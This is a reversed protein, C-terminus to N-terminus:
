DNFFHFDEYAKQYSYFEEGTDIYNKMGILCQMVACEEESLRANKYPFDYLVRDFFVIRDNYFGELLGSTKLVIEGETLKGESNFFRVTNNCIEGKTGRILLRDRRIPSFYQESNYDYIATKSGFSFIMVRNSTNRIPKETSEGGRSHSIIMPDTLNFDCLKQPKEYDSFLFRMMSMAHYDHGVSINIYHVDGITDTDILKKIAQYTGKQHYQEAVQIKEYAHSGIPAKLAPTESLVFYGKDALEIAFDSVYSYSICNVVFDFDENLLDDLSSFTKVNYKQEIYARRDNNRIYIGAVSFEKPLAQAIRLYFESRWGGGAIVFKIMSMVGQNSYLM